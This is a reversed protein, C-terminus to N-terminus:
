VILSETPVVTVAVSAIVVVGSDTVGAEADTTLPPITIKVIVPPTGPYVTVIFLGDHVGSGADGTAALPPVNVTVVPAAPQVLVALGTVTVTM